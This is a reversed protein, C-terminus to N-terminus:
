ALPTGVSGSDRRAAGRQLSSVILWGVAGVGPVLIIAIIWLWTYPIERRSRIALVLCVITLALFVLVVGSWVLDYLAPLFPNAELEM